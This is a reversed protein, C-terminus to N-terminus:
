VVAVEEVVVLDPKQAIVAELNLQWFTGVAPKTKARPPYDSDASVAVIRFSGIANTVGACAM